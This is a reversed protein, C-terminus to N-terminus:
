RGVQTKTSFELIEQPKGDADNSLYTVKIEEFNLSMDEARAYATDPAEVNVSTLMVNKLEYTMYTMSSEDSERVFHIEVKSFVHGKTECFHVHLGPAM